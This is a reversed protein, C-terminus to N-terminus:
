GKRISLFIRAVIETTFGSMGILNVYIVLTLNNELLLLIPTIGQLKFNNQSTMNHVAARWEVCYDWLRIPCNSEKMDKSVTSKLIGICLEALNAWPTGQELIKIYNWCQYLM